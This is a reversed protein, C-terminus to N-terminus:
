IIKLVLIPMAFSFLIMINYIKSINISGSSGSGNIQANQKM